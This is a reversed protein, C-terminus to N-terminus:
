RAQPPAAFHMNAPGQAALGGTSLVYTCVYGHRDLSVRAPEASFFFIRDGMQAGMRTRAQKSCDRSHTPMKGHALSPELAFVLVFMMGGIRTGWPHRASHAAANKRIHSREHVRVQVRRGFVGSQLRMLETTLGFVFFDLGSGEHPPGPSARRNKNPHKTRSPQGGLFPETHKIWM